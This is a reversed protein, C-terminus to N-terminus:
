EEKFLELAGDFDYEEILKKIQIFKINEKKSLKIKEINSIILDASVSNHVTEKLINCVEYGDMKPM